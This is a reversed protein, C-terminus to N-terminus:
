PSEQHCSQYEFGSTAQGGCEITATVRYDPHIGSSYGTSWETALRDGACVSLGDDPVPFFVPLWAQQNQLYDVSSDGSTTVVTWVLFGDLRADRAITLIAEGTLEDNLVGTFDLEEFLHTDSIIGNAPFNRVCLRIDFERGSKAFAKQAYSAALSSFAPRARLVEPLEIAAIMTRCRAPVPICDPKFFRRAMNWIPVIGDASGINGIIGQTCVDVKEPLEVSAMDGHIVKVREGLGQCEILERAKEYAGDLVEVAYVRRAGAEVCM